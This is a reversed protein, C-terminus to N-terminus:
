PQKFALRFISLGGFKTKKFFITESYHHVPVSSASLLLVSGFKQSSRISVAVSNLNQQTSSSYGFRNSKTKARGIKSQKSKLENVLKSFFIRKNDVFNKM